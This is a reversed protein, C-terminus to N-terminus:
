LKMVKHCEVDSSCLDSPELAITKRYNEITKPQFRHVSITNTQTKRSLKSVEQPISIFKGQNERDRLTQEDTLIKASDIIPAEKYKTANTVDDSPVKYIKNCYGAVAVRCFHLSIDFSFFNDKFEFRLNYM